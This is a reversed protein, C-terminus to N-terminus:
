EAVHEFTCKGRRHKSRATLNRHGTLSGDTYVHYTDKMIEAVDVPLEMGARERIEGNYSLENLLWGIPKHPKRGGTPKVRRM